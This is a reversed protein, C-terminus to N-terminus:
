LKLDNPWNWSAGILDHLLSRFNAACRDTATVLSDATLEASVCIRALDNPPLLRELRRAERFSVHGRRLRLEHLLRFNIEALSRHLVRQAAILEGRQIKLRVWTYDCVFEEAVMVAQDDDLRTGRVEEVVRSYFRAWKPGGKLVRHGSRMVTALEYLSRALAHSRRHFGLAVLLRALQLRRSPVIVADVEIGPSFLATAKTVGGSAPRVVYAWRRHGAFVRTWEATAFFCPRSSVIQVDLDSLSDPGAESQESRARSGFLTVAVVHREAQAWRM